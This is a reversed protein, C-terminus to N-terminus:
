RIVEDARLLISQPVTIGLAKATKLNVVLKITESQEFPLDSPKAGKLIRDIFYAARGFSDMEDTSYSMLGGAEMLDRFPAEAPLKNELALAGLQVRRNYVHPSSLLVVAGAKKQRAARFSAAFDYPAMVEVLQLQIGLSHAAIEFEKAETRVFPDWFVAVRSLGPLMEKLLELRKGALQTNRVTLGTINGGPRNFSEILGSAVPDHDPLIAVIPITSTAQKAARTSIETGTVIVDVKLRVLEEALSPLLAADGRATRFEIRITHGEVYGQNRLGKRIAEEISDNADANVALRGVVPVRDPQQALADSGLALFALAAALLRGRQTM